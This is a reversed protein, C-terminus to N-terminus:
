IAFGAYNKGLYAVKLAIHKKPMSEFDIPKNSKARPKSSENLIMDVLQDKTLGMLSKRNM